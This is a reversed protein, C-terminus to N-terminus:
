HLKSMVEHYSHCRNVLSSSDAGSQREQRKKEKGANYTVISCVASPYGRARSFMIRTHLLPVVNSKLLQEEWKLLRAHQNLENLRLIRYRLEPPVRSAKCVPGDLKKGVLAEVDEPFQHEMQQTGESSVSKNDKEEGEKSLGELALAQQQQRDADESSELLAMGREVIEDEARMSINLLFELASIHKTTRGGRAWGSQKKM